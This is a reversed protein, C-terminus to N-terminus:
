NREIAQKVLSVIREVDNDTLSSGSPLCIGRKFLTDSLGNLRGQAGQFLPQAHMPKWLPRSEINEAELTLRLSEPSIHQPLLLTTLWRNGISGELEPMFSIGEIECLAKHYLDFIERRREIRESLVEMQGRGIGAIINSMRYNYGYETHEYHPANDRAQTSLHRAHAILTEDDSVLMGGGSTTIIKNGNFSYIGMKGFTGTQKGEFGAGLSEAADEILYVGYHECIASLRKIDACQGYLHTVILAKPQKKGQSARQSLEEELLNPDLNWSATDSDIFFPTCREYLIPVVSGIFTFTSAMVEDGEKIGLVRLALHIAATGSTVALAYKAGTYAKIQAEFADVNHGLPAIYNSEFAEHIYTLENGGMHPPSLFIRQNM